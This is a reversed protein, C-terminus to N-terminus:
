LTLFYAKGDRRYNLRRGDQVASDMTMPVQLDIQMQKAPALVQYTIGNWGVVSSDTPHVAVHLDYFRAEWWAREPTNSGHLTDAHTFVRRLPAQQAALPLTLSAVLTLAALSIRM